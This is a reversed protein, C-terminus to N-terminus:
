ALILELSTERLQEQRDQPLNRDTVLLQIQDLTAFRTLARKGFKSSDTIVAVRDAIQLSKQELNSLSLDSTYFGADLSAADCGTVLWDVHYEKLNKEAVPGILDMADTRFEGGLLIVKCRSRFLTSAIHLSNTIVTMHSTCRAALLRAFCLTTTGGSLFLTQLPFIRDYLAKALASKTAALDPSDVDPSAQWADQLMATGRVVLIPFASSLEQLDRRITMEVVQFHAALAKIDQSGSQLLELIDHQRTNM